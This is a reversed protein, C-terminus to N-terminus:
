ISVGTRRAKIARSWCSEAITRRCSEADLVFDYRELAGYNAWWRIGALTSDGILGIPDAGAGGEHVVVSDARVVDSGGTGAALASLVAIAVAVIRGM